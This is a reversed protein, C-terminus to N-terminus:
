NQRDGESVMIALWAEDGATMALLMGDNYPLTARDPIMSIGDVQREIFLSSV